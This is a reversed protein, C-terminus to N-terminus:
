IVLNIIGHDDKIRYGSECFKSRVWGSWSYGTLHKIEVPSLGGKNNYLARFIAFERPTLLARAEKMIKKTEFYKKFM